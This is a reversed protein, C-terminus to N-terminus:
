SIPTTGPSDSSPVLTRRRLAIQEFASDAGATVTLTILRLGANRVLQRRSADGV